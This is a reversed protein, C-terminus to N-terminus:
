CESQCSSSKPPLPPPSPPPPHSGFHVHLKFNSTFQHLTAQIIDYVMPALNSPGVIHKRTTGWMRPDQIHFWNWNLKNTSLFKCHNRPKQFIQAGGWLLIRTYETLSINVLARFLYRHLSYWSSASNIRLKNQWDVEVHKPCIQLGDDPSICTTRTTSKLQGDTPRTPTSSIRGSSPSCIHRFCTSTSQCFLGLIFLADLQNKNCLYISTCLWCFM